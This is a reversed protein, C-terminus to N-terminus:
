AFLVTAPLKRVFRQVIQHTVDEYGNRVNRQKNTRKYFSDDVTLSNGSVYAILIGPKKLRKLSEFRTGLISFRNECFIIM